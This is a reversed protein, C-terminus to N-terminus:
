ADEVRGLLHAEGELAGAQPVVTAVVHPREVEHAVDVPAEVLELLEEAAEAVRDRAHRGLAGLRAELDHRRRPALGGEEAVEDVAARPGGLHQPEDHVHAGGARRDAHRAVVVHLEHALEPAAVHADGV